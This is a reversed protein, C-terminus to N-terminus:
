TPHQDFIIRMNLFNVMQVVAFKPVKVKGFKKTFFIDKSGEGLYVAMM